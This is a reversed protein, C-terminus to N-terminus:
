MKQFFIEQRVATQIYYYLQKTTLTIKQCNLILDIIIAADEGMDKGEPYRINEFLSTKYLKNVPTVSTLKAELVTKTAEEKDM